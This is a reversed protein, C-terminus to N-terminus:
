AVRVPETGAGTRVPRRRIRAAGPGERLRSPAPRTRGRLTVIAYLWGLIVDAVYHEGTYVLTLSMAVRTPAASCDPRWGGRSWFFCLFLVPYATHLSPIAAVENAFTSGRQWIAAAPEM